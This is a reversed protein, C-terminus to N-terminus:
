GVAQSTNWWYNWGFQSQEPRPNFSDKELLKSCGNFSQGGNFLGENTIESIFDFLNIEYGLKMLIYRDLSQDLM